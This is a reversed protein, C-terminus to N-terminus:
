VSYCLSFGLSHRISTAPSHIHLSRQLYCPLQIKFSDPHCSLTFITQSDNYKLYILFIFGHLFYVFVNSANKCAYAIIGAVQFITYNRSVVNAEDFAPLGNVLHIFYPITGGMRLEKASTQM